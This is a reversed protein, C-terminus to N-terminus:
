DHNEEWLDLRRLVASVQAAEALFGYSMALKTLHTVDARIQDMLNCGISGSHIYNRSTGLDILDEFYLDGMLDRRVDGWLYNHKGILGDFKHFIEEDGGTYAFELFCSIVFALYFPHREMIERFNKPFKILSGSQEQEPEV